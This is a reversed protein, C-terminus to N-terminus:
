SVIIEMAANCALLIGVGAGSSLHGGWGFLICHSGMMSWLQKGDHM